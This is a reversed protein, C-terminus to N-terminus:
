DEVSLVYRDVEGEPDFVLRVDLSAGPDLAEPLDDDLPDGGPTSLTAEAEALETDGAFFRGLVSPVESADDGENTLLAGVVLRAAPELDGGSSWHEVGSLSFPERVEVEGTVADADIGGLCGALPALLVATLVARRTPTM